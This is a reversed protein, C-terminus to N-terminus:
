VIPQVICKMENNVAVGQTGYNGAANSDLGNKCGGQWTWELQAEVRVLQMWLLIALLLSRLLMSQM